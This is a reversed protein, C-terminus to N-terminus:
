SALIHNDTRWGNSEMGMVCSASGVSLLGWEKSSWSRVPLELPFGLTVVVRFDQDAMSDETSRDAFFM